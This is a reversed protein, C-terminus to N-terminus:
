KRKVPIWMESYYAEDQTGKEYDAPDSYMELCCGRAIEYDTSGPLWESFIKRNVEQMAHPMAGRCTFVAWSSKPILRTVFGEPIELAPNYNDAIIYEFESGGMSEDFNIGYMACIGEHKEAEMFEKWLAPIKVAAEDYKYSRMLGVVTFADKEMIKYDMSYGGELAFKIKLPAFSKMAAGGRRVATPTAGHFRTFSKTFSDPSDYGYKLAIDIIRADTSALEGAALALRRNRIYESVTLGCLMSFGKQFYFPSINAHESIDGITLETTLNDEIYGLARVLCETWGM